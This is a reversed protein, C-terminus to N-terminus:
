KRNKTVEKHLFKKLSNMIATPDNLVDDNDVLCKVHTKAKNRKEMNFFYSNSKEGKEYWTVKSRIILGKTINDYFCELSNKCDEYEELLEITSNTSISETLTKM